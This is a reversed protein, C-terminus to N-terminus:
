HNLIRRVICSVWIQDRPRSSERSFSIAVWEPIRAQGNGRVSSGPPNCDMSDCLTSMASRSFLLLLLLLVQLVLKMLFMLELRSTGKRGM